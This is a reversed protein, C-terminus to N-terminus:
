VFWIFPFFAQPTPTSPSLACGTTVTKLFLKVAAGALLSEVGTKAFASVPVVPLKM